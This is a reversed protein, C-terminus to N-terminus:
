KHENIYEMAKQLYERALENKGQQLYSLAHSVYFTDDVSETELQGERIVNVVKERKEKKVYEKVTPSIGVAKLIEEVDNYRQRRLYFAILHDLATRNKQNIDLAKLYVAEAKKFQGLFEYHSGLESYIYDGEPNIKLAKLFMNVEEDYKEENAYYLARKVCDHTINPNLEVAKRYMDEAQSYKGVYIYCAGLQEYTEYNDPNIEMAKKLIEEAKIYQGQKIYVWGLALYFDVRKNSDQGIITIGKKFMNEAKTYDYERQNIYCWGLKAYVGEDNPNIEQAKSLV